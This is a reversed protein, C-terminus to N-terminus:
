PINTAKNEILTEAIEGVSNIVSKAAYTSGSNDMSGCVMSKNEGLQSDDEEDLLSEPSISNIRAVIQELEKRDDVDCAENKFSVYKKTDEDYRHRCNVLEQCETSITSKNEQKDKEAIRLCYKEPTLDNNQKKFLEIETKNVDAMYRQCTKKYRNLTRSASRDGLRRSIKILEDFDSASNCGPFRDMAQLESCYEAREQDQERMAMKIEKRQLRLGQMYNQFATKCFDKYRVIEKLSKEMNEKINAIHGLVGQQALSDAGMESNGKMVDNNQKKIQAKLALLNKKMMDFYQDPSHVEMKELGPLFQREEPNIHFSLGQTPLTLSQKLSAEINLGDMSTLAEVQMYIKRLDEENKQVNAKYQAVSKDRKKTVKEVQDAAKKLCSRMNTACSNARKLCFSSSSPSLAQASCVGVGQANAQYNDSCNLVKDKINNMVNSALSKNFSEFEKRSKAYNNMIERKSYGSDTANNNFQEKCNKTILKVFNAPSM